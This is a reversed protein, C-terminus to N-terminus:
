STPNWLSNRLPIITEYTRMRYNGSAAAVTGTLTVAPADAFLTWTQDGLTKDWQESRVVIGMRVAIIQGLTTTNAQLVNDRSWAGTAPTWNVGGAGNGIGYLLKMTVVNSAIPKPNPAVPQGNADWLVTSELMGNPAGAVDYQVRQTVVGGGTPGLNLLYAVAALPALSPTVQMCGADDPALCAIQTPAGSVSSTKCNGAGDIAVILDNASFGNPSQVIYNAGQTSATAPTTRRQAVSYNVVFTDPNTAGGGDTILLPIPRLSTVPDTTPNCTGLQVMADAIGNSANALEINLMFSSLLGNQQADGISTTNRKIGEAAAFVQYIVLVSIMGIVLGVMIEILSFGRQKYRHLNNM